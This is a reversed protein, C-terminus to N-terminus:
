ASFLSDYNVTSIFIIIVGYCFDKGVYDHLVVM